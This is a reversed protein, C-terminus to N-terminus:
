KKTSATKAYSQLLKTVSEDGMVAYAPRTHEANFVRLVEPKEVTVFSEDIEGQANTIKASSLKLHQALFPYVGKRKNIGYNHGETPLHHNQVLKEKGYLRYVNRIYPYEVEPTNSTWDKGDSVLLMPRPAALAAIEVNSTQHNPSKHIPMGSECVCGGFHYASVMVVPVSVSIRKDLATLLFTQTGGGSEGTVGIRKPDVNPLSLLFDIARRSNHTQLQLAYPHKHITQDSDGTGVMDYALVIAGMRALTACRKQMDESFRPNTGHGHPSLIAAYSKQPELPRYLNGTVFFGPLSEFAINEVTYGDYTRKSHIIPKLPINTPLGELNAGEWIGQRIRDARKEWGKRNAYTAAFKELAAKGETETYYRGQCLLSQDFAQAKLDSSLLLNAAWFAWGFCIKSTRKM